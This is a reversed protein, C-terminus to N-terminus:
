LHGLGRIDFFQLLDGSLQSDIAELHEMFGLASVGTTREADHVDDGHKIELRHAV